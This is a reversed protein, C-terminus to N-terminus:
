RGATTGVAPAPTIVFALGNNGCVQVPRGQWDFPALGARLAAERRGLLGRSIALRDALMAHHDDAWTNRGHSVYVFLHPADALVALTGRENLALVVALDEGRSATEGITPYSLPADIRAMLTGPHGSAPTARWSTVYLRDHGPFYHVVDRLLVAEAGTERLRGWQRSLREPHSRDDDDWQCIVDGRAAAISAMRMAGLTQGPAIRVLRIDGRDFRRVTDRLAEIDSASESETVIVLEREPYTQRRYDAISEAVMGARVPDAKTVM